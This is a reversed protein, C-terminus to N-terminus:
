KSVTHQWKYRCCIHMFVSAKDFHCIFNDPFRSFNWRTCLKSDINYGTKCLRFNRSYLLSFRVKPQIFSFYIYSLKYESCNKWFRFESWIIWSVSLIIECSIYFGYPKYADRFKFTLKLRCSAHQCYFIRERNRRLMFMMLKLRMVTTVKEVGIYFKRLWDSKSTEHCVICNEM